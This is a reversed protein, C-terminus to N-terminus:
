DRVSALATASACLEMGVLFRVSLTAARTAESLNEVVADVRVVDGELCPKHFRLNSSLLLARAGPLHCGVMRSLLGGLLMGHAVRAGFGASRAAGNSVHIPSADGTCRAFEDLLAPTLTVEFTCTMGVSLDQWRHRSVTPNM